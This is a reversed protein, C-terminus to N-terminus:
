KQAAARRAHWRKALWAGGFALGVALTSNLVMLLVSATTWAFSPADVAPRLSPAVLLPVSTLWQVATMPLSAPCPGYPCATRRALVMLAADLHLLVALVFLFAWAFRAHWRDARLADM